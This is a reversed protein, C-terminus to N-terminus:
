NDLVGAEKRERPWELSQLVKPNPTLFVNANILSGGGLGLCLQWRLRIALAIVISPHQGNAVFANLDRGSIWRYLGNIKGLSLSRPKSFRL